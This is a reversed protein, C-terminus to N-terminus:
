LKTLNREEGTHLVARDRGQVCDPGAVRCFQHLGSLCSRLTACSLALALLCSVAFVHALEM